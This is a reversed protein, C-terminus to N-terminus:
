IVTEDDEEMDKKVGAIKAGCNPCFHYKNEELTGDAMFFDEGCVSCRFVSYFLENREVMVCEIRKPDDTKAAKALAIGFMGVGAGVFTGIMAAIINSM